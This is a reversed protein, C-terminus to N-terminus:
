TNSRRIKYTLLSLFRRYDTTGEKVLDLLAHVLIMMKMVETLIDGVYRGSSEHSLDPLDRACMANIVMKRTALIVTILVAVM